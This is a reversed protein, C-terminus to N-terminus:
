TDVLNSQEAKQLYTHYKEPWNEQALVLGSIPNVPQHVSTPVM